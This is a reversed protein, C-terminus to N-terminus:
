YQGYRRLINLANLYNETKAGFQVSNTSGFIFGGGLMCIRLSERVEEEVQQLTGQILTECQIGAWITLKEGYQKKVTTLDMGASVQVSQYGKLGADIWDGLIDWIKGCCHFLITIGLNEAAEVIKKNVPMFLERITKPSLICGTTSGYDHGMMVIKVGKGACYELLRRNYEITVDYLKRIEEPAIITMMLQHAEDGGFPAILPGYTDLDRFVVARKEAFRDVIHDLLEFQSYDINLLRESYADIESLTLAEKAPSPTMCVISDNSACYKYVFGVSDRWIDDEIKRPPDPTITKEPVLGVTVVDYDLTEILESYDRKMSEVAEDRRGQWVALTTDKRNRHYTHRGLINSIHDHDIGWEGVPVRDPEEHAITKFVREISNM